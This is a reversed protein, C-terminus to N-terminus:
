NWARASFLFCAAIFLLNTGAFMVRVSVAYCIYTYLWENKAKGSHDPLTDAEGRPHKVATVTFLDSTAMSYSASHVRTMVSSLILEQSQWQESELDKLWYDIMRSFMGNPLHYCSPFLYKPDPPSTHFMHFPFQNHFEFYWNKTM